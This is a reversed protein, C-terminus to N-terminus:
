FYQNTSQFDLTKYKSNSTCPVKFGLIRKIKGTLKIENTNNKKM